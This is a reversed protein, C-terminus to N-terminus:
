QKVPYYQVGGRVSVTEVLEFDDWTLEIARALRIEAFNRCRRAVTIHPRYVRPDPAYGFPILMKQLGTVLSELEPPTTKAHLCAVKPKQWFTLADFRLRIPEVEM